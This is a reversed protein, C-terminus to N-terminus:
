LRERTDDLLKQFIKEAEMLWSSRRRPLKQLPAFYIIGLAISLAIFGNRGVGLCRGLEGARLLLEGPVNITTKKRDSM